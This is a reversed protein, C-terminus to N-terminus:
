LGKIEYRIQGDSAFARIRKERLLREIMNFVAKSKVRKRMRRSVDEATAGVHESIDILVETRVDMSRM